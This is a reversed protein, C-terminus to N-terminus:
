QRPSESPMKISLPLLTLLHPKGAVLLTVGGAQIDILKAEGIRDGPSMRNGNIIAQRRDPAILVSDLRYSTAVAEGRAASIAERGPPRMPDSLEEAAAPAAGLLLLALLLAPQLTAAPRFM